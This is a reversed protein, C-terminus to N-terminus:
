RSCHTSNSRSTNGEDVDVPPCLRFSEEALHFREHVVLRYEDVGVEAGLVKENAVAAEGTHDVPAVHTQAIGCEVVSLQQAARKCAPVDIIVETPSRVEVVAKRGPVLGMVAQERVLRRM